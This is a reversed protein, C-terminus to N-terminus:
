QLHMLYLSNLHRNSSRCFRLFQAAPSPFILKKKRPKLGYNAGKQGKATAKQQTFVVLSLVATCQVFQHDWMPFNTTVEVATPAWFYLKQSITPFIQTPSGCISCYWQMRHTSINHYAKMNILDWWHKVFTWDQLM